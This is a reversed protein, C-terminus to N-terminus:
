RIETMHDRSEGRHIAEIAAAAGKERRESSLRTLDALGRDLAPDMVDLRRQQSGNDVTLTRMLKRSAAIRARLAGTTELFSDDGTAAFGRSASELEGLTDRIDEAATIVLFTHEVWRNAEILHGTSRYVAIGTGAMLLM